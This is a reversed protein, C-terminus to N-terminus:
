STTQSSAGQANKMEGKEKLKQNKHTEFIKKRINIRDFYFIKDNFETVAPYFM